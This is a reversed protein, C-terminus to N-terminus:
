KGFADQRISVRGVPITPVEFGKGRATRVVRDRWHDSAYPGEAIDCEVFIEIVGGSKPEEDTVVAADIPTKLRWWVDRVVMDESYLDDGPRCISLYSGRAPVEPLTFPLSYDPSTSGAERIVVTVEVM